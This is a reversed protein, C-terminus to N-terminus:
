EDHWIRNCDNDGLFVLLPHSDATSVYRGSPDRLYVREDVGLETSIAHGRALVNRPADAPPVTASPGVVFTATQDCRNRIVLRYSSAAFPNITVIRTARPTAPQMERPRAAAEPAADGWRQIVVHMPERDGPHWDPELREEFPAVAALEPEAIACGLIAACAACRGLRRMACTYGTPGAGGRRRTEDHSVNQKLVLGHVHERPPESFIPQVPGRARVRARASV